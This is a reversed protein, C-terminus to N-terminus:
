TPEDCFPFDTNKSGAGRPMTGPMQMETTDIAAVLLRDYAKRAQTKTEVSLMKGHKSSLRIALNLYVAENNGVAIETEDDLDSDTPVPLPYGIDIGLAYWTSMMSDLRGLAANLMEPTLDYQYGALGIEDYAALIFKRKTWTTGTLIEPEVPTGYETIM